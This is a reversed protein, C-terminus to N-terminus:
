KYTDRIFQQAERITGFYEYTEKNKIYYWGDTGEYIDIGKYTKRLFVEAECEQTYRGDFYKYQIKM